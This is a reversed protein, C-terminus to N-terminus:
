IMSKFEVWDDTDWDAAPTVLNKNEVEVIKRILRLGSIHLDKSLTNSDILNLIACVVSQFSLNKFSEVNYDQGQKNQSRTVQRIKKEIHTVWHM